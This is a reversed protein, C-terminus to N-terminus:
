LGPYWEGRGGPTLDLLSWLPSGMDVHRSDQGPDTPAFLLESSWSHRIRGDARVFVHLIPNQDGSPEEGHYDRNFTNDASSVVPLDTWGRKKAFEALRPWPSRGVLALAVRQRLFRANGAWADILSSCMPCPHDRGPGFMWNYLLLTDKDGFLQSLRIPGDAGTFAYDTPVPGGPPLERRLAAVAETHRRLEVEAALLEDRARRYEPSEGPFRRDHLSPM